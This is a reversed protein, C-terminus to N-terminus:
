GLSRKTTSNKAGPEVEYIKRKVLEQRKDRSDQYDALPEVPTKTGPEKKPDQTDSLKNRCAQMKDKFLRCVQAYTENAKELIKQIQGKNIHYNNHYRTAIYAEDLLRLLNQEEEVE